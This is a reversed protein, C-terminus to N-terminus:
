SSRVGRWRTIVPPSCYYNPAVASEGNGESIIDSIGNGPFNAMM